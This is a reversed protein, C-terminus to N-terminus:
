ATWRLFSQGVYKFPQYYPIQIEAFNGAKKSIALAYDPEYTPNSSYSPSTLDVVGRGAMFVMDEPTFFKYRESAAWGAFLARYYSQYSFNAGFAVVPAGYMPTGLAAKTDNFYSNNVYATTQPYYSPKQLLARVSRIEEGWSLDPPYPSSEPVLTIEEVDGNSGDKGQLYM